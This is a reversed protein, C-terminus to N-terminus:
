APLPADLVADLDAGERRVRYDNAAVTVVAAFFGFSVTTAVPYVLVTLWPQRMALALFAFAAGIVFAPASYALVIAYALLASRRRAAPAFARAWAAILSGIVSVGGAGIAGLARATLVAVAFLAAFVVLISFGAVLGVRLLRALSSALLARPDRGAYVAVLAAFGYLYALATVIGLLWRAFPSSAEAVVLAQGLAQPLSVAAGIALAARWDRVLLTVARDFIEGITLPRAVIM